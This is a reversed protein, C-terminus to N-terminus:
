NCPAKLPQDLIMDLAMIYILFILFLPTSYIVIRPQLIIIM